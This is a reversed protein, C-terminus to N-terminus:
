LQFCFLGTLSSIDFFFCGRLVPNLEDVVQQLSRGRIRKTILCVRSKLRKISSAAIVLTGNNLITHGLFKTESSHCCVSKEQNVKLKLKDTLYHSISEKVWESARLSRVFISFDDAYWVFCHGRRELEGDLENLVINSLLPSLSSGKPTGKYRVTSVGGVM